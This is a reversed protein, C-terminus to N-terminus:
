DGTVLSFDFEGVRNSPGSAKGNLWGRVLWFHNEAAVGITDPDDYTLIAPTAPVTVVQTGEDPPAFYPATGRWIDYQANPELHQWSLTATAGTRAISLTPALPLRTLLSLDVVVPDRDSSRYADSAYLSDIQETSKNETQYDLASPEDANIAWTAAGVTQAALSASALAHDAYGGAGDWLATVAANGAFQALLDAYGGGVLNQIPAELRFANLQGFVLMDPDGSQTPDTALWAALDSAAAARSASWCGQGDGQDSDPGDAPCAARDHWQNVVVTLQEGQAADEFTQAMPPAHTPDTATQAFAGTDLIAPAGVPTVRDTRYILGVTTEGNGWVDGTVVAAYAAPSVAANLGAVLDDLASGAGTGDNERGSVGIIAADLAVLAAILKDRQRQLEAASSAGRPGYVGTDPTFYDDLSLFVARLNGGSIAPAAPRPNETVFVPPTTPHLRYRTERGDVVGTLGAAVRDGVRVPHSASLGPPPYRIPDPYPQESGDDLLVARADLDARFAAYGAADPAHQQTYALPREGSVLTLRGAAALEDSGAVTLAEDFAVRMGEMQEWWAPGPASPSVTVAAPLDAAGCDVARTLDTLATAGDIETVRGTLRVRQVAAVDLLAASGDSVFIGESTAADADQDATEEQVFFGGLQDAGQFDGVVVGEVTRTEDTAPSSAASGQLAHIPYAPAGCAGAATIFRVSFDSAPTDPPDAADQDQVKDAYVTFRCADDGYLAENPDITFATPGGSVTATTHTVDARLDCEVRFWEDAVTVPESFTVIFNADLAVAANGDAPTAGTVAPAADPCVNRPSSTNRAIPALVEFDDQNNDQDQCGGGKRQDSTTASARPAAGSGEYATASAYGVFDAIDPDDKDEIKIENRVLTVQGTTIGLSVEQYYDPTPLPLSGPCSAPALLYYSSPPITITGLKAIKWSSYYYQVSWGNLVAPDPSSNFLEIFDCGYTAGTGGGGPYIQSIRVVSASQPAQAVGVGPMLLFLLALVLGFLKPRSAVIIPSM